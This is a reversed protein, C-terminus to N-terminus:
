DCHQCDEVPWAQTDADDMAVTTKRARQLLKTVKKTQDELWEEQCFGPINPLTFHSKELLGEIAQRVRKLTFYREAPLETVWRVKLRVEKYRLSQSPLIDGTSKIREVDEPSSTCAQLHDALEQSRCTLHEPEPMRLGLLIVLTGSGFNIDWCGPAWNIYKGRAVIIAWGLLWFIVGRGANVQM